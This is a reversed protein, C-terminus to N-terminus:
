PSRSVNYGSSGGGGGPPQLELWSYWWFVYEGSYVTISGGIGDFALQNNSVFWYALSSPLSQLTVTSKNHWGTVNQMGVKSWSLSFTDSLYPNLPEVITDYTVGGVLKDGTLNYVSIYHDARYRYTGVVKGTSAYLKTANLYVTDGHRWVYTVNGSPSLFYGYRAPLFTIFYPDDKRSTPTAYSYDYKTGYGEKDVAVREAKQWAEVTPAAYVTALMILALFFLIALTVRYQKRGM